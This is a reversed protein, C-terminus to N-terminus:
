SEYILNKIVITIRDMKHQRDYAMGIDIENTKFIHSIREFKVIQGRGYNMTFLQVAEKYILKAPSLFMLIPVHNYISIEVRIINNNNGFINIRVTIHDDTIYIFYQSQDYAAKYTDLTLLNGSEEMFGLNYIETTFNNYTNKKLILSTSLNLINKVLNISDFYNAM